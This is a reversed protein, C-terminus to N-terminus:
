MWIKLMFWIILGLVVIYVAGIMLASKLAGLAIWRREERSLQLEPHFEEPDEVREEQDHIIEYEEEHKM